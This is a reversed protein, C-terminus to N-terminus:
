KTWKKVELKFLYFILMLTGILCVLLLFLEFFYIFLNNEYVLVGVTTFSPRSFIFINDVVIALNIILIFEFFLLLHIKRIRNM